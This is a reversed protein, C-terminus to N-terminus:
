VGGKELREVSGWMIGVAWRICSRVERNYGTMCLMVACVSLISLFGFFGM